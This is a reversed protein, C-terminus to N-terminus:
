RKGGKVLVWVTVDRRLVRDGIRFRVSALAKQVRGARELLELAVALDDDSAHRLAPSRRLDQVDVPGGDFLDMLDLIRSGYVGRGGWPPPYPRHDRQSASSM